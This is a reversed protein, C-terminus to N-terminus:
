TKELRRTLHSQAMRIVLSGTKPFGGETTLIGEDKLVPPVSAMEWLDVAWAGLTKNESTVPMEADSTFVPRGGSDHGTVVRRTGKM